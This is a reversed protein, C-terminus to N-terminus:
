VGCDERSFTGSRWRQEKFAQLPSSVNLLDLLRRKIRSVSGWKWV